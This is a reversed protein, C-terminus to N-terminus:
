ERRFTKKNSNSKFFLINSLRKTVLLFLSQTEWSFNKQNYFKVSLKCETKVHLICMTVFILVTKHMYIKYTKSQYNFKTLMELSYAAKGKEDFYM